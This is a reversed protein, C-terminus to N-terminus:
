DRGKGNVGRFGFTILAIGVVIAVVCLLISTVAAM